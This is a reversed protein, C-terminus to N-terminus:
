RLGDLAATPGARPSSDDMGPVSVTYMRVHPQECLLLSPSYM